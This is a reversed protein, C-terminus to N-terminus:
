ATAPKPKVNAVVAEGMGKTNADIHEIVAQVAVQNHAEKLQQSIGQLLRVVGAEVDTEKEVAAKLEHMADTGQRSTLDIEDDLADLRRMVECRAEVHHHHHVSM